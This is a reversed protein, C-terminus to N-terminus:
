ETVVFKFGRYEQEYGYGVPVYYGCFEGEEYTVLVAKGQYHAVTYENDSTSESIVEDLDNLDDIWFDPGGERIERDNIPNDIYVAEVWKSM